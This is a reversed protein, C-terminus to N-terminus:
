HNSYYLEFVNYVHQINSVKDLSHSRQRYRPLMDLDSLPQVSSREAVAKAEASSIIIDVHVNLLHNKMLMNSIFPKNNNNNNGKMKNYNHSKLKRGAAVVQEGDIHDSLLNPCSGSIASKTQLGLM